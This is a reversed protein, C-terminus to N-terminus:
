RLTTSRGLAQASVHRASREALNRARATDPGVLRGGRKVVRGAVLVTDVTSVDAATVVAAVPDHVPALSPAGADLLLLDAQKGPTLSGIRDAMGIAAAGEITAMRLVDAATFPRDAPRGPRSREAAFAARMVAFMDGPVATVTDVGLGTPVGSERFRGTEPLGHGMQCEVAPTVSATGGAAAVLKMAEEPMGNGHVFLVGPGLLGNAHLREVPGEGTAHLSIPLGLERALLWDARAAEVSGYVPGWAAFAPTVLGPEASPFHESRFRRVAAEDRAGDGPGPHAYALVARVGSERLAAVAADTHAPTLQIHSWDYLTTVGANLAEIAGWLEAAYVDEARFAPALRGLVLDLYGGLTADAAIGRLVSQWVHRHTDVLGPLVIRGTADIVEEDGGDAPRDGRPPEPGVSVIVGDEVVVCAGPLVRPEPETDIVIGNVIVTRM